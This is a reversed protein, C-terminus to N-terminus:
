IHILSLGEVVRFTFSLDCHDSEIADLPEIGAPPQVLEFHAGPNLRTAEDIAYLLATRFSAIARADIRFTESRTQAEDKLKRYMSQLVDNVQTSAKFVITGAPTLRLPNTAAILETRLEKELASIHRSLTPQSVHLESAASSFSGHVVLTAFERFVDAQM